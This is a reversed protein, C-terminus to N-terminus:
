REEGGLDLEACIPYFPNNAVPFETGVFLVLQFSNDNWYQSIFDLLANIKYSSRLARVEFFIKCRSGHASAIMECFVLYMGYIARYFICTLKILISPEVRSSKTFYIILM